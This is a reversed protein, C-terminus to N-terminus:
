WEVGLICLRELDSSWGFTLTVRSYILQDELGRLTNTDLVTIDEWSKEILDIGFGENCLEEELKNGFFLQTWADDNWVLKSSALTGSEDIMTGIIRSNLFLGRQVNCNKCSVIPKNSYLPIGCCETCCLKGKRWYEMLKIERIIVNIKGTFDSKTDLQRVQDEIEGLTFLIRGPGKMAHTIDWAQSPFPIHVTGKKSMDQVKGRLWNAEAFDPDVDVISNYGIGVEPYVTSQRPNSHAPIRCTPKSILLITKNPVWTKASAIKDGWLKLICSATDDFIGVEILNLPVQQKKSHILRRPGVSRVCVLIRGTGLDHGSSIFVNLTFLDPLGNFHSIDAEIPLRLMRDDESGVPDTHFYINTARNIGPHITTTSFCFPIPDIASTKEAIYTAWITVRQGLLFQYSSSSSYYLKVQSTHITLLHTSNPLCAMFGPIHPKRVVIIATGDSVVLTFYSIHGPSSASFTSFNVIRGSIQYNNAGGQLLAISCAKYSRPPQWPRSQPDIVADIESSTFGDGTNLHYPESNNGIPPSSALERSYFTQISPFLTSM